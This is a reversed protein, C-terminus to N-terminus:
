ENRLAEVPDIRAARFAPIWASALAVACLLLPAATFVLPDWANVGFLLSAIFRTLGAAAIIGIAIGAAALRMGEMLVMNRVRGAEAGLALRIGFEKARQRASYAMLGYIGIAALLLAVCGFITLLWMIFGTRATSQKVIEEMPRPRTVPLGGSAQRLENDILSGPLQSRARTRVIWVLSAVRGALKTIGDTTQALPVYVLPGLIRNLGGDRVDGVIGVIERPPEEFEPGYGSGLIIRDGVPNGQRWFKKAMAEDIIAVRASGATDRESFLRGRVLPIKFIEFYGPSVGLWGRGDYRGVTRPRGAIKFPIGFAGELPLNYTAGARAVAPLAELRQVGNQIMRSVDSTSQFRTGALSMRATFVNNADFGPDVTRLAVFTRILLAAGILLVLALATESIVLVGRIRNQRLGTGSRGGTEKLATVLDGKSASLAPFLGFLIGTILSVSGTFLVLRWDIAIAAGHEGIRPIDSPSLRLLAHVGWLGLCLGLAGGALSLVFSETLLQRVIRGRAAGIAARVAIERKRGTARVLLLNAVNACAILLVFAVACALILLPPRIESVLGERLPMAGFGDRSGMINPFMSRFEAAALRLREEAMAITIGPRLRAAVTFYQAHDQSAPDIQFPLWIDPPTNLETDFGSGIVGVVTHPEGGLSITKGVVRPDGGFRRRWLGCSLIAVRGGGPRDEDPAFGRGVALPVGFLHFYDASVRIAHVREPYAGGTLTLDAGNYEYASVDQLVEKQQRWVNFKAASGGYSPGGQTTVFLFVIRGADPFAVPKLLVTDIVSFIATNAGIGLALAALATASFAPNKSLTRVAYRVDHFSAEIRRFM